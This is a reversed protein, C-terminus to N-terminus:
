FNAQFHRTAESGRRSPIVQFPDDALYDPEVASFKVGTAMHHYGSMDIGVMFIGELQNFLLKQLKSLSLLIKATGNIQVTRTYWTVIEGNNAGCHLYKGDQETYEICAKSFYPKFPIICETFLIERQWGNAM